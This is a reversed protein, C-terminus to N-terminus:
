RVQPDFGPKFKAEPDGVQTRYHHLLGNALTGDWHKYTPHVALGAPKNIAIIDTDEYLIHLPMEQAVMDDPAPRDLSVEIMDGPLLGYSNKAPVGNVLVRKTKIAKQIRNRTAYKMHKTLYIDLRQRSSIDPIEFYLVAMKPEEIM